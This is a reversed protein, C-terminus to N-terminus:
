PFGGGRGLTGSAFRAFFRQCPHPGHVRCFQIALEPSAVRGVPVRPPKTKSPVRPFLGLPPEEGGNALSASNLAPVRYRFAFAEQRTSSFVFSKAIPVAAGGRGATIRKNLVM